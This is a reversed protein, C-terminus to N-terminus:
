CQQRKEKRGENSDVRLGFFRQAQHLRNRHGVDFSADIVHINFTRASRIRKRERGSCRALQSYSFFALHYEGPWDTALPIAVAGEVFFRV